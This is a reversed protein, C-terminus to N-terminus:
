GCLVAPTQASPLFSPSPGCRQDAVLWKMLEAVKKLLAM